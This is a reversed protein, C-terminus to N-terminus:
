GRKFKKLPAHIHEFLKNNGTQRRQHQYGAPGFYRLALLLLPAKESLIV